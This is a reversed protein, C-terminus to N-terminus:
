QSPLPYRAQPIHPPVPKTSPSAHGIHLLVPLTIHVVQRHVPLSIAVSCSGLISGKTHFCPCFFAEPRHVWSSAEKFFFSGIKWAFPGIKRIKEGQEVQM